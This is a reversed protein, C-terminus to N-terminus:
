CYYIKNLHLWEVYKVLIFILNFILLVKSVKEKIQAHTVAFVLPGIVHCLFICAGPSVIDNNIRWAKLIVPDFLISKVGVDNGARMLQRVDDVHLSLSFNAGNNTMQFFLYFLDIMYLSIILLAAYLVYKKSIRIGFFRM